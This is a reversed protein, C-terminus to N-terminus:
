IKNLKSVCKHTNLERGTEYYILNKDLFVSIELDLALLILKTVVM